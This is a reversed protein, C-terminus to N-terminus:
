NKSALAAMETAFGDKVLDGSDALSIAFEPMIKRWVNRVHTARGVIAAVAIM